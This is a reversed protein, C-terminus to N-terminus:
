NRELLCLDTEGDLEFGVMTPQITMAGDDDVAILQIWQYCYEASPLHGSPNWVIPNMWMQETENTIMYIDYGDQGSVVPTIDEMVRIDIIGDLDYDVGFDYVTGDLDDAFGTFVLVDEHLTSTDYDYYDWFRLSGYIVPPNNVSHTHSDADSDEDANAPDILDLCGTLPLLVVLLLIFMKDTSM